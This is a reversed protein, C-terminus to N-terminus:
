KFISGVKEEILYKKNIIKTIEGSVLGIIVVLPESVGLGTLNEVTYNIATVVVMAGLRWLFSKVQKNM